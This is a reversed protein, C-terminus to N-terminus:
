AGSARALVRGTVGKRNEVKARSALLEGVVQAQAQLGSGAFRSKAEALWM